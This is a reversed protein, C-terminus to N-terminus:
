GFFPCDNATPGDIICTTIVNMKAGTMIHAKVYARGSREQGYKESFWRVFRSTSFGSSDPIFTSEIARLPWASREILQYLVTTMAESDFFSMVSSPNPVYSLFGKENADRLDCM